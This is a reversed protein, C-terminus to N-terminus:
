IHKIKLKALLIFHTLNKRKLLNLMLRIYSLKRFPSTPQLLVTYGKSFKYKKFLYNIVKESTINSKSLNLPRKNIILKKFKSKSYNLLENWDSSLIIKNFVKSSFAHKLTWYIIPKNNFKIM